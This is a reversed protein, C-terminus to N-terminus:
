GGVERNSLFAALPPAGGFDKIGLPKALQKGLEHMAKADWQTWGSPPEVTFKKPVVVPEALAAGALGLAAALGAFAHLLMIRAFSPAGAGATLSVRPRGSALGRCSCALGAR